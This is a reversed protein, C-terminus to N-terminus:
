FDDLGGMDMMGADPMQEARGMIYPLSGLQTVLTLLLLTLLPLAIPRPSQPAIPEDNM